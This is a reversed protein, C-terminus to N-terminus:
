YPFDLYLQWSKWGIAGILIVILMYRVYVNAKKNKLAWVSSIRAGIASGITMVIALPWDIQGQKWFVILVPVTYAMVVFNKIGNAMKLNMKMAYVLTMLMFVGMGAQIFGGYFGLAPFVIFYWWKRKVKWEGERIKLFGKKNFLILLLMFIMLAIVLGAIFENSVQTAIVAGIIAFLFITLSFPWTKKWEFSLNGRYSLTSVLSQVLIGLRNTGNAVTDPLGILSSTLLPLTILSGSGAVSNIFGALFGAIFVWVFEM